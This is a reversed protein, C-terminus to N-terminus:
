RDRVRNAHPRAAGPHVVRRADQYRARAARGARADGSEGERRSLQIGARGPTVQGRLEAVAAAGEHQRLRREGLEDADRDGSDTM